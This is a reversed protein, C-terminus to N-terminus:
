GQQTVEFSTIDTKPSKCYNAVVQWSIALRNVTTLDDTVVKVIEAIQATIKWITVQM